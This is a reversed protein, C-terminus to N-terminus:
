RKKLVFDGFIRLFGSFDGVFFDEFIGFFRWSDGRIEVFGWSDGRIGVFRLLDGFFGM